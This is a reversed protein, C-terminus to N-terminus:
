TLIVLPEGYEVPSGTEVLIQTVKGARPAKVPNFTKMAEILLLTQGEAVQDGVKIFPAAGPEPLLYAVGVMPSKVAGPNHVPDVTAPEAAAAVAAVSAPAAATAPAPVYAGVAPERSGRAVRIRLGGSEYEIETLNTEDLVTALHRVLDSEIRSM